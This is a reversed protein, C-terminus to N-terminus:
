GGVVRRGCELGLGWDVGRGLRGIDIVVGEGGRIVSRYGDGVGVVSWGGNEVGVGWRCSDGVRDWDSGM